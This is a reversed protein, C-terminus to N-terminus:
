KTSVWCSFRFQDDLNLPLVLTSFQMELARDCMQRRALQDEVYNAQYEANLVPKAGDIFPTLRDCEAYEFCQENVAFDYDTVLEEVQELDNKLGIALNRDHALKAMTRNFKLQDQATLNFGSDNAYGDVNDPEVGDCGKRQALDLRAQMIALVKSSRIDLWREDEWGALTKGLDKPLFRDSDARWEEDSGASFYCIIKKQNNQLKKILVDATDFLDLDYLEVDYDTNVQGSLQWQWTIGVNPQYWQSKAITSRDCSALM